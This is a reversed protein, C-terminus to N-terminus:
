FFDKLDRSICANIYGNFYQINYFEIIVNM